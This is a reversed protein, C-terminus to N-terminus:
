SVSIPIGYMQESYSYNVNDSNAQSLKVIIPSILQQGVHTDPYKDAHNSELNNELFFRHSKTNGEM